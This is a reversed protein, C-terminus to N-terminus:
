LDQGKQIQIVIVVLGVNIGNTNLRTQLCIYLISQDSRREREGERDGM